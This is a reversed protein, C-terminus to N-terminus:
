EEDLRTVTLLVFGLSHLHRLLGMLGAQDTRARFTTVPPGSPPLLPGGELIVQLPSRANIEEESVRGRLRISYACVDPM